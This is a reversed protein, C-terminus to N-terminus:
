GARTPPRRSRPEELRPASKGSLIVPITEHRILRPIESRFQIPKIQTYSRHRHCCLKLASTASTKASITSYSLPCRNFYPVARSNGLESQRRAPALSHSPPLYSERADKRRGM